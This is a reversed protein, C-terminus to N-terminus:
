LAQINRSGVALTSTTFRYVASTATTYALTGFGVFNGDVNFRVYGSPSPPGTPGGSTVDVTATFTVPQGVAAGGPLSSTLTTATTAAVVRQFVVASPQFTLQPAPTAAFNANGLYYAQVQYGAPFSTPLLNTAITYTVSNPGTA